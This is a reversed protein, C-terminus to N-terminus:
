GCSTELLSGEPQLSAMGFDAVRINGKEDLLLNEPKLDRHSHLHYVFIVISSLIVVFVLRVFLKNSFVEFYHFITRYTSFSDMEIYYSYRLSYEFLRYM